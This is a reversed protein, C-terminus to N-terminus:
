RRRFVEEHSIEGHILSGEELLPCSFYSRKGKVFGCHSVPDMFDV